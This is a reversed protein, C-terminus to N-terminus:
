PMRGRMERWIPDPIPDIHRTRRELQETRRELARIADDREDFCTATSHDLGNLFRANNTVVAELGQLRSWLLGIILAEVLVVVWVM